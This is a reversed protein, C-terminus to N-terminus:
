YQQELRSFDDHKPDRSVWYSDRKTDFTQDIVKIKCARLILAMPVFGVCWAVGLIITTMVISLYHALKMWGKWIPHLAKPTLYGMLAFVVGLAGWILTPTIPKANYLRLAAIGLGIAGFLAGFEKVHQRIPKGFSLQDLPETSGRKQDQVISDQQELGVRIKNALGGEGAM